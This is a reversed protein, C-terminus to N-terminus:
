TSCRAQAHVGCWMAEERVSSKASAKARVGGGPVAHVHHEVAQASVEDVGRQLQKGRPPCKRSIPLVSMRRGASM